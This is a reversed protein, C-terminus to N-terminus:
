RAAEAPTTMAALAAEFGARDDPGSLRLTHLLPARNGLLPVGRVPDTRALVVHPKGATRFRMARDLADLDHGDVELCTAGFARIRAGLPELNAVTSAVGDCQQGNADIVIRLTDLRHFAANALTEWTQGEEFEGDSMFVWTDGTEGKLRRGLAIGAAQSVAQALSGGTVEVGPSHEAAIMEVTSGDVNYDSLAVPDLRGTAILVSYLSLAYHSPSFIFRDLDAGRAGNAAWGPEYGPNGPGPVGSFAGPVVPADVPALRLIRTYLIALIEASSCAQSLYGEGHRLVHELVRVRISDAVAQTSTQWTTDPM